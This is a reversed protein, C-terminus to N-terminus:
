NEIKLEFSDGITMRTIRNDPSVWVDHIEGTNANTFRYHGAEVLQPAGEKKQPDFALTVRQYLRNGYAPPDAPKGDREWTVGQLGASARWREGNARFQISEMGINKRTLEGEAHVGAEDIAFRFAPASRFWLMAEDYSGGTVPKAAIAPPPPAATTTTESPAPTERSCAMATLFITYIWFRQYRM